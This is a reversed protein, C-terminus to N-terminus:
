VQPILHGKTDDLVDILAKVAEAWVVHSYVRDGDREIMTGVEVIELRTQNLKELLEERSPEVITPLPWKVKIELYFNDWNTTKLRRVM